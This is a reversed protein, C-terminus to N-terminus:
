IVRSCRVSVPKFYEKYENTSIFKTEGTLVSASSGDNCTVQEVMQKTSNIAIAMEARLLVQQREHVHKLDELLLELLIEPRQQGNAEHLLSFTVECCIGVSEVNRSLNDGFPPDAKGQTAEASRKDANQLRELTQEFTLARWPNMAQQAQYAPDTAMHLTRRWAVVVSQFLPSDYGRDSGARILINQRNQVQLLEQCFYEGLDPCQERCSEDAMEGLLKFCSTYLPNEDPEREPEWEKEPLSSPVGRAAAIGVDKSTFREVNQTPPELAVALEARFLAQQRRQIHQFDELLLELLLMPQQTRTAGDLLQRTLKECTRRYVDVMPPDAYKPVKYKGTTTSEPEEPQPNRIKELTTAFTVAGWANKAQEAQYAPDTAMDLLNRWVEVARQFAPSGYGADDGVKVLVNYRKQVQILEEALFEMLDHCKERYAGNTMEFLVKFCSNFLPSEYPTVEKEPPGSPVRGATVRSGSVQAQMALTEQQNHISGFVGDLTPVRSAFVGDLTPMSFSSQAATHSDESAFKARKCPGSSLKELIARETEDLQVSQLNLAADDESELSGLLIRTENELTQVHHHGM